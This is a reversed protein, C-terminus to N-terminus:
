YKQKMSGWIDKATEKNLITEMIMRDISQFLYNKMKMDKLRAEEIAKQQGETPEVGVAVAPIGSEVLNYIKYLAKICLSTYIAKMPRRKHIPPM